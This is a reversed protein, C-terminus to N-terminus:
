KDKQKKLADIEAQHKERNQENVKRLEAVEDYLSRIEENHTVNQKALKEQQQRELDLLAKEREIDKKEISMQLNEKYQTQAKQADAIADELNKAFENAQQEATVARVTLTSQVESLEVKLAENEDGYGKYQAVLGNLVDNKEKYEIILAQNNELMTQNTEFSENLQKLQEQLAVTEEHKQIVQEKLAANKQQFDTIIAEKSELKTAIEKVADEKLYVSRKMMNVILEYIRTTHSELETLDQTYDTSGLKISNTEYLAIAKEFWDKASVGSEDIVLKAKEYMEESVKVGFTKDAM